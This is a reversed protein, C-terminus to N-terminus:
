QTSGDTSQDDGEILNSERIEALAQDLAAVWVAGDLKEQSSRQDRKDPDSSV